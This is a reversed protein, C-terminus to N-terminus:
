YNATVRTYTFHKIAMIVANYETRFITWLIYPPFHFRFAYETILFLSYTKLTKECKVKIM